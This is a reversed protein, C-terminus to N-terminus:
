DSSIETTTGMECEVFECRRGGVGGVGGGSGGVDVRLRRRETKEKGLFVAFVTGREGSGGLGSGRRRKRLGSPVRPRLGMSTELAVAWQRPLAIRRVTGSSVWAPTIPLKIRSNRQTGGRTPTVDIGVLTLSTRSPRAAASASVRRVWLPSRVWSPASQETHFRRSKRSRPVRRTGYPSAELRAKTSISREDAHTTKSGASGDVPVDRSAAADFHPRRSSKEVKWLFSKERRKAFLVEMSKKASEASSLRSHISVSSDVIARPAAAFAGSHARLSM